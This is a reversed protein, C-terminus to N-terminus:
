FGPSSSYDFHAIDGFRTKGADFMLQVTGVPGHRQKAIIVEARNQIEEMKAQWQQMKELEEDPPKKQLLYYAERYVFMVMDADQEISGSERLDALQPRKDERSEVARNVQSLAMVPVDLEKALAKLGQTIESLEQVRNDQTRDSGRMLQLYDVVVFGLNKERKLRRARTRMTAIPMAPTDDIYLPLDQILQATEVLRDFEAHNLEGKRIKHSDIESESSLIRSALQEASMELSFFAVSKPKSHGESKAQNLFARACRFAINTCLATKGMAPRGALIMLDSRHMGGFQSDLSVFGTTEGSLGGGRRKATEAMEVAKALASAFNQAGRDAQGTEALSFLKGEAQEIQQVATADIPSDLAQDSVDQGIRFLARRLHLDYIVKAYQEASFSSVAQGALRSLYSTGGIDALAEDKDFYGKLTVPNAIQGREILRMAAAYIRGHVPEYFFADKLLTSLKAGIDNDFLISGLVAQEAELNHPLEPAAADGFEDQVLSLTM